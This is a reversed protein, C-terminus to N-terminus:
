VWLPVLRAYRKQMYDLLAFGCVTLFLVVVWTSLTIPNGLLPARIIELFHYFPNFLLFPALLGSRPDSESVAPVVWIIPTALFAIRLVATMVQALDRYRAGVIGVIMTLWYGNAIVLALGAGSVLSYLTIPQLFVIFVGVIIIIQHLFQLVIKIVEVLAIERLNM